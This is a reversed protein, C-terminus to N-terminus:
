LDYLVARFLKSISLRSILLSFIQKANPLFARLLLLNSFQNEISLSFSGAILVLFWFGLGKSLGTVHLFLLCLFDGM